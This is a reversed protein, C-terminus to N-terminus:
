SRSPWTRPDRSGHLIAVIIILEGHVRFFVSYPFRVVEARRTERHIRPFAFPHVQIRDIAAEIAALLEDGLGLQQHDYWDAAEAMEDEVFEGYEIQM